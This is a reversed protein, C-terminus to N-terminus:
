KCHGSPRVSIKGTFFNGTFQLIEGGGASVISIPSRQTCSRREATSAKGLAMLGASVFKKSLGSCGSKLRMRIARGIAKSNSGRRSSRQHSQESTQQDDM